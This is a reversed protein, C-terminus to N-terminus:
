LPNSHWGTSPFSKLPTKVYSWNCNDHLFDSPRVQQMHGLVNKRCDFVGKGEESYLSFIFDTTYNANSNENRLSLLCICAVFAINLPMKVPMQYEFGVQPDLGEESNDEDERRSAGRQDAFGRLGYSCLM